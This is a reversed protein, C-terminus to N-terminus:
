QVSERPVDKCYRVDEANGIPSNEIKGEDDTKVGFRLEPERCKFNYESEKKVVQDDKQNSGLAMDRAKLNGDFTLDMLAGLPELGDKMRKYNEGINERNEATINDYLYFHGRAFNDYGEDVDEFIKYDVNNPYVASLHKYLVLPILADTSFNYNREPHDKMNNGGKGFQLILVNSNQPLNELDQKRMEYAFWADIALLFSKDGGYGYTEKLTRLIGFAAGGGSSHGLVGIKQTNVQKDQKLENIANVFQGATWTTATYSVNNIFVAHYGHSAIFNLVTQHQNVHDNAGGGYAFFVVPLNGALGVPSYVVGKGDLLDNVEVENEGKEWFEKVVFSAIAEDNFSNNFFARVEYEGAPLNDIDISASGNLNGGSWSWGRQNVWDNSAGKEYIGFWDKQDGSMGTYSVTLTDNIAYTQKNLTLKTISENTSFSAIEELEFSNNFFARVEYDGVPLNEINLSASGNVRGETYFWGRQNGWDNTDGKKYIGFWDQANGSMGQYNVVLSGQVQQDLTIQIPSEAHVSFADEAVLNFSNNLFFRAEYNGAPLQVAYNSYYGDGAYSNLSANKFKYWDGAPVGNVVSPDNAWVWSVVNGWDNSDGAQYIGIWDLGGANAPADKLEILVSEDATYNNKYSNIDAAWSGSMFLWSLLMMLVIMTKHKM